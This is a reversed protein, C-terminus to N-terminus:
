PTAAGVKKGLDATKERFRRELTVGDKDKFASLQTAIRAVRESTDPHTSYFRDKADTKKRSLGELVNHLGAADWGVRVLMLTGLRDAEFEDEQPLGKTLFDELYGDVIGTFVASSKWGTSDALAQKAKLNQFIKTGHGAAIHGIEHALIGALESETKCARLAGRTIFVYGGPASLANVEDTDLIAFHYPLEPRPSHIALSEGVLNVYEVLAPTEDLGGYRAVVNVAVAGGYAIEEEAGVPLQSAGARLGGTVLNNVNVFECAPLAAMAAACAAWRLCFLAAKM